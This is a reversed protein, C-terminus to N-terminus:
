SSLKLAEEYHLVKYIWEKCSEYYGASSHLYDIYDEVLNWKGSIPNKHMYNLKQRIFKETVIEKIDESPQFVNHIKGKLEENQSVTEHMIKLLDNRGERNLRKVIEYAM